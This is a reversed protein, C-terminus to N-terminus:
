RNCPVGVWGWREVLVPRWRGYYSDWRNEWRRGIPRWERCASHGVPPPNAPTLEANRSYDYATPDPPPPSPYYYSRVPPPPAYYVPAVYVPRPAFAFGTFLGLGFGLIAGGGFGGHADAVVPMFALLVIIVVAFVLKLTKMTKGGSIKFALSGSFNVQM